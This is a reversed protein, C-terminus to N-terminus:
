AGAMPHWYRRREWIAYVISRVLFLGLFLVLGIPFTILLPESPRQIYHETHSILYGALLTIVFNSSKKILIVSSPPSGTWQISYPVKEEDYSFMWGFSIEGPPTKDVLRKYLTEDRESLIFTKQPIPYFDQVVANRSKDLSVWFEVDECTIVRMSEMDAELPPYLLTVSMSPRELKGIGTKLDRIFYEFAFKGLGEKDQSPEIPQDFYLIVKGKELTIKSPTIKSAEFLEYPDQAHRLYEKKLLKPRLKEGEADQQVLFSIQDLSGSKVAIVGKITVSLWGKVESLSIKLFKVSVQAESNKPIVPPGIV